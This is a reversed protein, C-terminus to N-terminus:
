QLRQCAYMGLATGTNLCLEPCLATEGTWLGEEAGTSWLLFIGAQRSAFHMLLGPVVGNGSCFLSWISITFLSWERVNLLSIHGQGGGEGTVAPLPKRRQIRETAQPIELNKSSPHESSVFCFQLSKRDWLM